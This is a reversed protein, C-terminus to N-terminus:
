HKHNCAYIITNPLLDQHIHLELKDVGDKLEELNHIKFFSKMHEKLEQIVDEKSLTTIRENKISYRFGWYIPASVQV